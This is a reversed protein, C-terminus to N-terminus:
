NKVVLSINFYKTSTDQLVGIKVELIEWAMEYIQMPM